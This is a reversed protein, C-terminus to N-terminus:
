VAKTTRQKHKRVILIICIISIVLTIAIVSALIWNSILWKITLITGRAIAWLVVFTVIRVAWHIESGFRGGPSIEWAIKFAVTGIIALIIYEWYWQVPLGLPETLFEFILKYLSM